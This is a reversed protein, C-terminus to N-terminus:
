TRNENLSWGILTITRGTVAPFSALAVRCDAGKSGYDVLGGGSACALGRDGNGVVINKVYKLGNGRNEPARGSIVKKFATVLAMQDDRIAPDVRTLSRLIGQGRDAICVWLRRKTIQTEFWCGPIDQWHGLNHDFCNNGVEGVASILLSLEKEELGKKTYAALHGLRATFVDRAACIFESPNEDPRALSSYWRKVRDFDPVGAIFYRVAPGRGRSEISGSIMLSKLHRHIAQPSIKLREILRVPAVGGGGAEKLIEVIRSRTLTKM